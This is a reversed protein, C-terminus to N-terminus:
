DLDEVPRLSMAPTAPISRRVFLTLVDGPLPRRFSLILRQGITPDSGFPQGTQGLVFFREYEGALDSDNGTLNAFAMSWNKFQREGTDGHVMM